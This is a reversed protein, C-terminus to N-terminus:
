NWVTSEQLSMKAAFNVFCQGNGIYLVIGHTEFEFGVNFNKHCLISNFIIKADKELSDPKSPGLEELYFSIPISIVLLPNLEYKTM